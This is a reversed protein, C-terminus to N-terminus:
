SQTIYLLNNFMHFYTASELEGTRRIFELSMFAFIFTILLAVNNTVGKANSHYWVFIVSILTYMAIVKFSIKSLNINALKAIWEMARGLMRTEVAAIIVGFTLIKLFLSDSFIQQSSQPVVKESTTGLSSFGSDIISGLEPQSSINLLGQFITTLFLSLFLIGVVGGIGWLVASITNNPKSNHTIRAPLMIYMLGSFVIFMILTTAITLDYNIALFLVALILSGSILLESKDERM